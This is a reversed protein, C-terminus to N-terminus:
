RSFSSNYFFCKVMQSIITFDIIIVFDVRAFRRRADGEVCSFDVHHERKYGVGASDL